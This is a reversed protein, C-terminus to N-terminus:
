RFNYKIQIVKCFLLCGMGKDFSLGSSASLDQLSVQQYPIDSSLSVFGTSEVLLAVGIKRCSLWVVTHVSHRGSSNVDGFHLLRKVM